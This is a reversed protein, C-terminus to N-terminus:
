LVLTLFTNAAETANDRIIMPINRDALANTAIGEATRAIIAIRKTSYAAQAQEVSKIIHKLWDTGRWVRDYALFGCSTGKSSFLFASDVVNGYPSVPINTAFPAVDLARSVASLLKWWFGDPYGIYAAEVYGGCRLLCQAALKLAKSKKPVRYKKLLHSLAPVYVGDIIRKEPFRKREAEPLVIKSLEESFDLIAVTLRRLSPLM